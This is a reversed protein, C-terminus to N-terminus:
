KEWSPKVGTLNFQNTEENCRFLPQIVYRGDELGLVEVIDTVKRSGDPRRQLCAIVNVNAAITRRIEVLGLGLNAMLSMAELRELANQPSTAHMTMFSGDYGSGIIELIRAVETGHLEGFLLHDPRM